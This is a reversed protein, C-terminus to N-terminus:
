IKVFERYRILTALSVASQLELRTVTLMKIPAVKTRARIIKLPLRENNDYKAYVVTSYALKTANCFGVM